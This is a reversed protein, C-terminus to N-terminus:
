GPKGASRPIAEAVSVQKTPAPPKRYFKAGRVWIKLAQWHIAAIVKLTSFPMSILVSFIAASSIAQLKGSQSAILRLDGDKFQHIVMRPASDPNSIRFEYTSDMDMFPSVHFVKVARQRVPWQMVAGNDSLLYCHQESFTNHVEVLIAILERNRGYCYWLSIPNFVYGLVRPMAQLLVQAPKEIGNRALTDDIWGRLSQGDRSGHDRQCFSLLGFRDVNFWRSLSDAADLRDIDILM